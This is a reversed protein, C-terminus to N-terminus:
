SESVNGMHVYDRMEDASLGSLSLDEVTRGEEFWDREHVSSYLEIISDMLPASSGIERGISSWPVLGYPVDETLYRHEISNPGEIPTLEINGHIARYLDKWDWEGEVGVFKEFDEMPTLEYGLKKGIGKREEDLRKTIKAASPTFGHEYIYFRGRGWYEIPGINIACAGSHFEPKVMSLGGELVDTYVKGFTHLASFEESIRDSKKSPLVGINIPIDGFIKVECPNVLRASYPLNDTEVIASSGDGNSRRFIKKLVLSGFYGPYLIIIQNENVRGRLLEAYKKHAFAPVVVAIYKSDEIAEDIDSTVNEIEATGESDIEGFIEICKKEFLEELNQKFQPMEYITVDFGRLTLDAAMAHAGNGGGLVAVKEENM